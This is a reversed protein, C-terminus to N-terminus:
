LSQRDGSLPRLGQVRVRGDTFAALAQDIEEPTLRLFRLYFRLGRRHAVRRVEPQDLGSVGPTTATVGPALEVALVFRNKLHVAAVCSWPLFCPRPAADIRCRLGERSLRMAEPPVGIAGWTAAMRRRAAFNKPADGALILGTIGMGVLTWAQSFGALFITAVALGIIIGGGIAEIWGNVRRQRLQMARTRAVAEPDVEM